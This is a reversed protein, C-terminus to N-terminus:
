GGTSVGDLFVRWALKLHADRQSKSASWELGSLNKVLAEGIVSWIFCRALTKADGSRCINLAQAKRIVEICRDVFGSGFHDSVACALEPFSAAEAIVIRYLRAFEPDLVADLAAGGLEKLEALPDLAALNEGAAVSIADVRRRIVDRFLAAKDPFRRYLTQKGVRAHAAVMAMSTTSYGNELFLADAIM